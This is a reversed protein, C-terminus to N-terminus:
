ENKEEQIFYCKLINEILCAITLKGVGNPVPTIFKCHEKVDDFDVDGYIRNDIRNIGVDIILSNKNVMDKKLFKSEGIAIVVIDAKLTEKTINKSKSHLLTVNCNEQLLLQAIPKGCINSRGIVVAKKNETNKYVSKVIKLCGCATCPTLIKDNFKKQYFFKGLNQYTLCDVDKDPKITNLIKEENLNNPLPLQVMISTIKKDKNFDNIKNIIENESSKKDFKVAVVDIGCYKCANIKNRLYIESAEDNGVSILALTLKLQKTEIVNKVEDKISTSIDNCNIIM